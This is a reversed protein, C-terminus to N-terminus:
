VEPRTRKTVYQIDPHAKYGLKRFVQKSATNWDEILGAYIHIGLASFRRELEDVLQKGIGRNRYEPLVALRNLWGKRGDQTGLIAGVVKGDAEAVLYISTPLGLQRTIDERSDRGCPRSPLGADTWLLLLADYDEIRFDRIVM